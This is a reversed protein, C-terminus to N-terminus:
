PGVTFPLSQGTGGAIDSVVLTTEGTGTVVLTQICLGASFAGSVGPTLTGGGILSLLVNGNFSSAGPGVARLTASFPVGSTQDGVPDIAYARPWTGPTVTLAGPSLATRGDGMKVSADYTGPALVTALTGQVLGGAPYTGSGVAEPGIEVQIQTNVDLESQGYDIQVALQAVVQVSVATPQSAVMTGPVVSTISVPPLPQNGCGLLPLGCLLAWRGM